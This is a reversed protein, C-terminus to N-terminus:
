ILKPAPPPAGPGAPGAGKVPPGAAAAPQPGGPPPTGPPPQAAQQQQMAIFAAHSTAVDQDSPEPVAEEANQIDFAKLQAIIFPRVLKQQFAWLNIYAMVKEFAAEAQQAQQDGRTLTMELSVHLDIDDLESSNIFSSLWQDGQSYIFEEREDMHKLMMIVWAHVTDTLGSDVHIASLAYIEDGSRQIAEIGYKLKSSAMQSISDGGPSLNGREAQSSQMMTKMMDVTFDELPPSSVITIAEKDKPFGSKKRHWREGPQPEQADWGECADPDYLHFKGSIADAYVSRNLCWDIFNQKHQNLKYESIGYWRDRKPTIRIVRFPRGIKPPVVNATYDYYLLIKKEICMIVFIERQDGSGDPDCTLYIEALEVIENYRDTSGTTAEQNVHDPKTQESKPEASEGKLQDLMDVLRVHFRKEKDNLTKPDVATVYRSVVAPVTIDYKHVVYPCTQLDSANLPALLDGHHIGRAEPGSYRVHEREALMPVFKMDAESPMPISPDKKLVYAGTPQVMIPVPTKPAGWPYRLSKFLKSMGTEPTPAPPQPAVGPKPVPETPQPQQFFSSDVWTDTDLIVDMTSTRRPQGDSGVLVNVREKYTTADRVYTIKEVREGVVGAMEIGDVLAEKLKSAKAKYVAFNQVKDPEITSGENLVPKAAFFPDTGLFDKTLRAIVPIANRRSQNFSSNSKEFISGPKARHPFHNEHEDIYNNRNCIWEHNDRKLETIRDYCFTKLENEQEENLMLASSPPCYLVEGAQPQKADQEDSSATDIATSAEM